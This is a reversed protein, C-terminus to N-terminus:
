TLRENTIFYVDVVRGYDDVVEGHENVQEPDTDNDNLLQESFIENAHGADNALVLYATDDDDGSIRGTVLFPISGDGIFQSRPVSVAQKDGTLEAMAERTAQVLDESAAEGALADNVALWQKLIEMLALNAIHSAGATSQAEFPIINSM